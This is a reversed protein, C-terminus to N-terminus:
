EEMEQPKYPQPLPMWALVNQPEIYYGNVGHCYFYPETKARFGVEIDLSRLSLLVDQQIEPLERGIPIWRTQELRRKWKAVTEKIGLKTMVGYGLLEKAEKVTM